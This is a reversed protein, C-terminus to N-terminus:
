PEKDKGHGNGDRDDVSGARPVKNTITRPIAIELNSVRRVRQTCAAIDPAKLNMVANVVAVHPDNTGQPDLLEGTANAEIQQRERFREWAGKLARLGYGIVGVVFAALFNALEDSV